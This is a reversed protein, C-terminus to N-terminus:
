RLGLLLATAIALVAVAIAHLIHLRRIRLGEETWERANLFHWLGWLAREPNRVFRADRWHPVKRWVLLWWLLAVGAPVFFILQDRM